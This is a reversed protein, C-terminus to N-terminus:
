PLLVFGAVSALAATLAAALGVWGHAEVARSQAKLIRNGIWAATGFLVAATLGLWGHLTQLPTWDRLWFASVPGGVLGLMLMVVAPKALRAHQKVLAGRREGAIRRRRMRFGIRLALFMLVLSAVMWAPHVYALWRSMADSQTPDM